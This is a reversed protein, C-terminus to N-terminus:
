MLYCGLTQILACGDQRNRPERAREGEQVELTEAGWKEQPDRSCGQSQKRSYVDKLAVLWKSQGAM